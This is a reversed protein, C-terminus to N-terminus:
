VTVKFTYTITIGSGASVTITALTREIMYSAYYVFTGAVTTFYIGIENITIPSATANYFSRQITFYRSNANTIPSTSTTGSYQLQGSGSGHAFLGALVAIVTFFSAALDLSTM